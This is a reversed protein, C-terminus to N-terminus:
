DERPPQNVCNGVKNCVCSTSCYMDAVRCKCGNKKSKAVPLCGNRCNCNHRGQGGWPCEAKALARLSMKKLSESNYAEMVERADPVRLEARKLMQQVDVMKALIGRKNALRYMGTRDNRQVILMSIMPSGLAARDMRPVAVKVWDGERFEQYDVREMTRIRDAVAKAIQQRRQQQRSAATREPKTHVVCM